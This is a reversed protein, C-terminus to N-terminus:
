HMFSSKFLIRLALNIQRKQTITSIYKSINGCSIVFCSKIKEADRGPTITHYIQGM